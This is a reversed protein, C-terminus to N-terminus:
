YNLYFLFPNKDLAFANNHFGSDLFCRIRLSRKINYIFMIKKMRKMVELLIIAKKWRFISRRMKKIEERLEDSTIWQL